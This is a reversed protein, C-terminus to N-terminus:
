KDRLQDQAQEIYDPIEDCTTGLYESLEILGTAISKGLRFIM